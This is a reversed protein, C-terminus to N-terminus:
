IPFVNPIFNKELFERFLINSFPTIKGLNLPRLFEEAAKMAQRRNIESVLGLITSERKRGFSGDSQIIDAWWQLEWVPNRKGRKEFLALTHANLRLRRASIVSSLRELHEIGAKRRIFAQLGCPDCVFYPKQNKDIRSTVTEGCLFCPITAM